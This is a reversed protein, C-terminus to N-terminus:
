PHNPCTVTRDAVDLELATGDSPCQKVTDYNQVFPELDSVDDITASDDSAVAVIFAGALARQNYKCAASNASATTAFFTAVAVGLLISIILVVTALEIMTFGRDNSNSRCVSSAATESKGM